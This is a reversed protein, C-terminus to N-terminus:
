EYVDDNVESQGQPNMATQVLEQPLSKFLKYRARDKKLENHQEQTLTDNDLINAEIETIHIQLIKSITAWGPQVQLAQMEAAVKERKEPTGLLEDWARRNVIKESDIKPAQSNNDM